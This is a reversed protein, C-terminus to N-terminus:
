RLGDRGNTERFLPRGVYPRANQVGDGEGADDQQIGTALCGAAMSETSLQLLCGGLDGEKPFLKVDLIAAPLSRSRSPPWM